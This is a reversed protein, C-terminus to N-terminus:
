RHSDFSIPQFEERTFYIARQRVPDFVRKRRKKNPLSSMFFFFFMPIRSLRGDMLMPIFVAFDRRGTALYLFGVAMLGFKLWLLFTLKSSELERNCSWRTCTKISSAGSFGYLNSLFTQRSIFLSFPLPNCWSFLARSVPVKKEGIRFFPQTLGECGEKFIESLINKLLCPDLFGSEQACM